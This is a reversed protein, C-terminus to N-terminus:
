SAYSLEEYVAATKNYTFGKEKAAKAFLAQASVPAKKIDKLLLNFDAVESLEEIALTWEDVEKKSKM